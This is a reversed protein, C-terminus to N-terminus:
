NSWQTCNNQTEVKAASRQIFRVLEAVTTQRPDCDDVVSVVASKDTPPPADFDFCLLIDM